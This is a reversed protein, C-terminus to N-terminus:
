GKEKELEVVTFPTPRKPRLHINFLDTGQDLFVKVWRKEAERAEPFYSDYRGPNTLQELERATLQHGQELLWIHLPRQKFRSMLSKAYSLHSYGRETLSQKTSGVYRVVGDAGSLCYIRYVVM